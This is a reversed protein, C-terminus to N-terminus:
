TLNVLFPQNAVQRLTSCCSLMLKFAVTSDSGTQLLTQLLLKYLNQYFHFYTNINFLCNEMYVVYPIKMIPYLPVIYVCYIFPVNSFYDHRFCFSTVFKPVTESLRTNSPALSTADIM